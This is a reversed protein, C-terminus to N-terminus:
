KVHSFRIKRKSTAKKKEPFLKTTRKSAYSHKASEGEPRQDGNHHLLGVGNDARLQHFAIDFVNRCHGEIWFDSHTLSEVISIFDTEFVGGFQHKDVTLDLRRVHDTRMHLDLPLVVLM